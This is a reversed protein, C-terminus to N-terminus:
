GAMVFAKAILLLLLLATQANQPFFGPVRVWAHPTQVIGYAYQPQGPVEVGVHREQRSLWCGSCILTAHLVAPRALRQQPQPLSCLISVSEGQRSQPRRRQVTQACPLRHWSWCSSTVTVNPVQFMSFYPLRVPTFPRLCLCSPASFTSFSSWGSRKTSWSTERPPQNSFSM